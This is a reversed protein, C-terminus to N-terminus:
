SSGTPGTAPPEEIMEGSGGFDTPSDAFKPLGDRVDLVREQYHIHVSPEHTFGSGYLASPYVVTVGDHRRNMVGAGCRRCACRGNASTQGGTPEQDEFQRLRYADYQILDDEGKTITVADGPWAAWANIPATHWRRCSECHCYGAARPTGTVAVRVAGCACSGEFLTTEDTM